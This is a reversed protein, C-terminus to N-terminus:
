KARAEGLARSLTAFPGIADLTPLGQAPRAAPAVVGDRTKYRMHAVGGGILAVGVVWGYKGIWFSVNIQKAAPGRMRRAM